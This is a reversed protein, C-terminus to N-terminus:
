EENKTKKVPRPSAQPEYVAESKKETDEYPRTVPVVVVKKELKKIAQVFPEKINKKPTEDNEFESM